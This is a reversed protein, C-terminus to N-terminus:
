PLVRCVEFLTTGLTGIQSTDVYRASKCWNDNVKLYMRNSQGSKKYFVYGYYTVTHNAYSGSVFSIAGPRNNDVEEKLKSNFSAVNNFFFDNNGVGSYGYYRWVETVLDDIDYPMVGVSPTYYGNVSAVVKVRDFLTNIDSSIASYGHARHYNFIATITTLTCHNEASFDDMNLLKFDAITRSTDVTWGSGYTSNVHEYPNSIGGYNGSSKRMSDKINKRVASLYPLNEETQDMIECSASSGRLNSKSGEIPLPLLDVFLPEGEYSFEKILTDSVENGVVIYGNDKSDMKLRIIYSSGDSRVADIM